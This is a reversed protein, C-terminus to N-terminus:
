LFIIGQMKPMSAYETLEITGGLLFAKILLVFGKDNKGMCLVFVASM